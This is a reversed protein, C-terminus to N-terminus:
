CFFNNNSTLKVKSGEEQYISQSHRDEVTTSGFPELSKGNEFYLASSHSIKPARWHIIKFIVFM